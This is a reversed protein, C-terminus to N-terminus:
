CPNRAKANISPFDGTTCMACETPVNKPIDPSAISTWPFYMPNMPDPSVSSVGDREDERGLVQPRPEFCLIEMVSCSESCEVCVLVVPAFEPHHSCVIIGKCLGQEWAEKGEWCEDHFEKPLM